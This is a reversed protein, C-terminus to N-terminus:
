QSDGTLKRSLAELDALYTRRLAIEAMAKKQAAPPRRGATAELDRVRKDLAEKEVRIARRVAQWSAPTLKGLGQKTLARSPGWYKQEIKSGECIPLRVHARCLAMAVMPHAKETQPDLHHLVLELGRATAGNSFFGRLPPDGNAVRYLFDAVAPVAERTLPHSKHKLM